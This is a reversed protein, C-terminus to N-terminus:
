KSTRFAELVGDPGRALEVTFKVTHAVIGIVVGIMGLILAVRAVGSWGFEYASFDFPFVDFTRVMVALSVGSLGVQAVATFWRPDFALFVVNVAITAVISVNLLPLVRDFDETLFPPWHWSPLNNVVYLLVANVGIAVLYGPRRATMSPRLKHVVCAPSTHTVSM